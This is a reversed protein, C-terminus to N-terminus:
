RNNHIISKVLEVIRANDGNNFTPIHVSCVKILRQKTAYKSQRCSFGKLGEIVYLLENIDLVLPMGTKLEVEAVELWICEALNYPNEETICKEVIRQIEKIRRKNWANYTDVINKHVFEDFYQGIMQDTIEYVRDTGFIRKIKQQHNLTLEFRMCRGEPLPLYFEKEKRLQEGKDYLKIDMGRTGSSRKFSQRYGDENDGKPDSYHIAEGDLRLNKPFLKFIATMPRQYNKCSDNIIFTKNIEIKHFRSRSFDIVIGYKVDLYDKIYKLRERYQKINYCYLNHYKKDGISIKMYASMEGNKNTRYILSDFMEQNYLKVETYRQGSRSSFAYGLDQNFSVIGQSSLFKVNKIDYIDFDMVTVADILPAPNLPPLVGLSTRQIDANATASTVIINNQM